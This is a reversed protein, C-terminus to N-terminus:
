GGRPCPATPVLCAGLVIARAPVTPKPGPELLPGGTVPRMPNVAVWENLATHERQLAAEVDAHTARRSGFGECVSCLIKSRSAARGEDIPNRWMKGSGGCEECIVRITSM